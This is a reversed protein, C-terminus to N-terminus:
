VLATPVDEIGIEAAEPVDRRCRVDRDPAVAGGRPEAPRVIRLHFCQVGGPELRGVERRLLLDAVLHLHHEPLIRGVCREAHIIRGGGEVGVHLIDAVAPRLEVAHLLLDLPTGMDWWTTTMPAPMTPAAVATSSSRSPWATVM